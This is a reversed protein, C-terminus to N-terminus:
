FIEPEINVKYKPREKAAHIVDRMAENWRKEKGSQEGSRSRLLKEAVAPIRELLDAVFKMNGLHSGM